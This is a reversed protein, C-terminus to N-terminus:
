LQIALKGMALATDDIWSPEVATLCQGSPALLVGASGAGSGEPQFRWITSNPVCAAVELYVAGGPVQSLCRGDGIVM